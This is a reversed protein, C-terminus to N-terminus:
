NKDIKENISIIDYDFDGNNNPRKKILYNALVELEAFGFESNAKSLSDYVWQEHNSKIKLLKDAPFKEENNDIKTHCNCCLFILNKESNVFEEPLNENYRAATKKEGYIHANQGICVEKDENLEVLPIKCIACRNGSKTHLIRENKPSITAKSM